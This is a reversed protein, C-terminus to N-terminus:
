SISKSVGRILKDNGPGGKWSISHFLDFPADLDERALELEEFASGFLHMSLSDGDIGVELGGTGRLGPSQLSLTTM